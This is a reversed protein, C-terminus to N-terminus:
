NPKLPNLQSSYLIDNLEQDIQQPGEHDSIDINELSM